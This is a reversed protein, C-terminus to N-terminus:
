QTPANLGICDFRLQGLKRLLVNAQGRPQRNSELWERVAQTQRVFSVRDFDQTKSEFVGALRGPQPFDPIALIGMM